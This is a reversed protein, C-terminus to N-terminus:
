PQFQAFNGRWAAFQRHYADLGHLIRNMIHEPWGRIFWAADVDKLLVAFFSFVTLSLQKQQQIDSLFVDPLTYLWGFIHPFLGIRELPSDPPPHVITYTQKLRDLVATYELHARQDTPFTCDLLFRLNNLHAHETSNPLEAAATPHHGDQGRESGPHQVQSQIHSTSVDVALDNSCLELISRVGMFLALCGSGGDDRFGLYEGPQPGRALSCIFIFVAATYLIQGNCGTIHPVASAAERVAVDYHTEAEVAYDIHDGTVQQLHSFATPDKALHFGSLALLLRLLFHHQFGWRTMQTQWQPQEAGLEPCSMFHHFLALDTATFQFPKNALTTTEPSKSRTCTPSQEAPEGTVDGRTGHARKPATFNSQSSSIFTLSDRADLAGTDKETDPTPNSSGSQPHTYDCEIRHRICNTCSPKREDCKPEKLRQYLPPLQLGVKIKRKKCNACGLRSKKHTKRAARNTYENVTPNM